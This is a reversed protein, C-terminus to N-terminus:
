GQLSKELRELQLRLTKDFGVGRLREVHVVQGRINGLVDRIEDPTFKSLCILLQFYNITNLAMYKETIAVLIDKYESRVQPFLKSNVLNKIVSIASSRQSHLIVVEFLGFLTKDILLKFLVNSTTCNATDSIMKLAKLLNGDSENTPPTFYSSCIKGLVVEAIKLNELSKVIPSDFSAYLPLFKVIIDRLVRELYPDYTSNLDILAECFTDWYKKLANLVFNHLSKKGILFQMPLLLIQVLKTLITVPKNRNYIFDGCGKFISSVYKYIQFVIQENEPNSLYQALCKDVNDFAIECLKFSEEDSKSSLYDIFTEMPKANSKLSNKLALPLVDLKAVNRTLGCQPELTLFCVKVWSQLILHEQQVNLIINDPYHELVTELFSALVGPAVDTNFFNFMENTMTSYSLALKGAIKGTVAPSSVSVALRKISSYVHNKFFNEWLSWSDANICKDLLGQIVNLAHTLDGYYCVSLYKELWPGFLLWQHLQMNVSANVILELNYIFSKVLHMTKQNSSAEELLNVLAPVIKEISHGNRVYRLIVVAYLNWVFKSYKKENPLASLFTLLKKEVENFYLTSLALYLTVVHKIGIDTLDKTKNPGIQSYIRGKIKGWHLPFERLYVLLMGVFFDFDEHCNKPCYLLEDLSDSIEAATNEHCGKNSVNLRKSYFDWIIQFIEIKGEKLWLDCILPEILQFSKIIVDNNAQENLVQKCKLELFEYNAKIRECKAGEDELEHNFRQINSLQKLFAISVVPEEDKLVQNFIKWFLNVDLKETLLQIALWFPNLCASTQSCTKFLYFTNQFIYELHTEVEKIDMNCIKMIVLLYYLIELLFHLYTVFPNVEVKACAIKLLSSQKLKKMPVISCLFLKMNKNIQNKCKESSIEVRLLSKIVSQLCSSIFAASCELDNVSLMNDNLIIGQLCCWQSRLLRVLVSKDSQIDEIIEECIYIQHGLTFDNTEPIEDSGNFTEQFHSLVWAVIM